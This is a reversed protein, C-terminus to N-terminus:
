TAIPLRPACRCLAARPLRHPLTLVRLPLPLPYAHLDSKPLIRRLLLLLLCGSATNAGWRRTRGQALSRARQGSVQMGQGWGGGGAGGGDWGVGVVARWVGKQVDM